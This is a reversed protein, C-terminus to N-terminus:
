LGGDKKRKRGIKSILVNHLKQDTAEAKKGSVKVIQLNM